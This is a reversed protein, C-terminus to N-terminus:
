KKAKIFLVSMEIYRLENLEYLPIREWTALKRMDIEVWVSKM